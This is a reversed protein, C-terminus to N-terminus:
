YNNPAMKSKNIKNGVMRKKAQTPSSLPKNMCKLLFIVRFSRQFAEIRLNKRTKTSKKDVQM